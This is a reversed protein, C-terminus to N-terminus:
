SRAMVFGGNEFQRMMAEAHMRSITNLDCANNLM